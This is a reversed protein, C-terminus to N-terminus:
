SVKLFAIIDESNILFSGYKIIHLMNWQWVDLRTWWHRGLKIAIHPILWKSLSRGWL